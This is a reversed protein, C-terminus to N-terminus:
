PPNKITASIELAFKSLSTTFDFIGTKTSKQAGHHPGHRMTDGTTSAMELSKSALNRRLYPKEKSLPNDLELYANVDHNLALIQASSVFSYNYVECFGGEYVAIDQFLRHWRQIPNAQPAAMAMVPLSGIVQDYGYIRVVEEVIDEAIRIDKSRWTPVEINLIDKKDAVAFGLRELISVIVKKSIVIGIKKEFLNYPVSIANKKQVSSRIDIVTSVVRAKPCIDLVLEVIKNLAQETLQQDLGKEFRVSADTRLHLSSSGRRISSAEFCASELIISTTKESIASEVGGMIGAIALAKQDDAIMM